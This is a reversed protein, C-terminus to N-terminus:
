RGQGSDSTEVILNVVRELSDLPEMRIASRFRDPSATESRLLVVITDGQSVFMEIGSGTVLPWETIENGEDDFFVEPVQQSYTCRMPASPDAYGYLSQLVSIEFSVAWTDECGCFEVSDVCAVVITGAWSVVDDLSMYVIQSASALASLILLTPCAARM